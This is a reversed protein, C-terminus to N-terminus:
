MKTPDTGQKKSYAYHLESVDEGPVHKIVGNKNIQYVRVLGGSGGDRNTAIVIARKGLDIAEEDTLDYRYGSDLVGYAYLSGSGVSFKCDKVRSGENDVYYLHPGDKDFGAIMIGASLDYARYHFFINTIMKSAGAVSIREGNRLEYLRCLKSLVREWYSCDAAGGAMTGLLFDNIQIIKKVEQSAIYSGQSARSDVALIVGGQYIFGLTTTGRNMMKRIEGKNYESVFKCPNEIKAYQFTEEYIREVFDEEDKDNGFFDLRLFGSNKLNENRIGYHNIAEIGSDLFDFTM